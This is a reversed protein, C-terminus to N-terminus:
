ASPGGAQAKYQAVLGAYDEAAMESSDLLPATCPWDIMLEPCDWRCVLLRDAPGAASTASLHAADEPFYLGHAIGPPIAILRQATADPAALFGRQAGTAMPRLDHLGLFARGQLVCLYTWAACHLYLGRLANARNRLSVWRVPAPAEFWQKRFVEALAGRADAHTTLQRILCGDPFGAAARDSSMM